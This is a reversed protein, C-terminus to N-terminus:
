CKPDKEPSRSGPGLEKLARRIARLKSVMRETGAPHTTLHIYAEAAGLILYADGQTIQSLNYRARHMAEGLRESEPDAITYGPMRLIEHGRWPTKM